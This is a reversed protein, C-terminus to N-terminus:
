SDNTVQQQQQQSIIFKIYDQKLMLNVKTVQPYNCMKLQGTQLVGPLTATIWKIDHFSIQTVSM